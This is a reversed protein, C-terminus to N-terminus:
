RPREIEFNSRKEVKVVRYEKSHTFHHRYIAVVVTDGKLIVLTHPIVSQVLAGNSLKIQALEKPLAYAYSGEMSIEVIKGQTTELPGEAYNWIPSTVFAIVFLVVFIPLVYKDLLKDKGSIPQSM